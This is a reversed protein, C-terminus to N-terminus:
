EGLTELFSALQSPLPSTLRIRVGKIPHLFSLFTAHLFLRDLSQVAQKTLPDRVKKVARHGYTNDGVVPHGLHQFHVRIQHTRGTLLFVRLYTFERLRRIVRYRTVAPRTRRSRTSIRTRAVPDRGLPVDIEGQDSTITGYVLALYEKEVERKKFQGSLAAHVEERKAVVLLGSTNKDLRHVIGPRLGNPRSLRQFYFALANALTGQRNGAGPHVVMGAPKDVVVLDEDEYVIDLPLDQPILTVPEIPPPNAVVTQGASLTFGAKRIRGDVTVAGKAIWRQVASRSVQELHEALFLDLRKGADESEVTFNLVGSAVDM